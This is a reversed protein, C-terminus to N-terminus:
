FYGSGNNNKLPLCKIRKLIQNKHGYKHDSYLSDDM